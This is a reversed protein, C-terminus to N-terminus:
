RNGDWVEEAATDIGTTGCTRWWAIGSSDKGSVKESMGIIRCRWRAEM